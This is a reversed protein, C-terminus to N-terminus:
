RTCLYEHCDNDRSEHEFALSWLEIMNNENMRKEVWVV